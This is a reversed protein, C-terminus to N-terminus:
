ITMRQTAETIEELIPSNEHTESHKMITMTPATGPRRYNTPQNPMASARPSPDANVRAGNSNLDRRPQQGVVPNPSNGASYQAGPGESRRPYFGPRGGNNYPQWRPDENYSQKHYYVRQPYYYPPPMPGYGKPPGHYNNYAPPNYNRQREYEQRNYAYQPNKPGYLSTNPFNGQPHSSVYGVWPRSDEIMVEQPPYCDQPYDGPPYTYEEEMPRYSPVGDPSDCPRAESIYGVFPPYAARPRPRPDESPYYARSEMAPERACYAAERPYRQARTDPIIHAAMRKELRIAEDLAEELDKPQTSDVARCIDAPLGRIFMDLATNQLARLMDPIYTAGIEEKLATEAGGLLVNIHDYFDNVTEGQKMRATQLLHNYYTYTNHAGFRQKLHTTLEKVSNFTKRYISRKAKGQLKSLLYRLFM